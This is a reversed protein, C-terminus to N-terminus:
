GLFELSQGVYQWAKSAAGKLTLKRLAPALPPLLQELDLLAEPYGLLVEAEQM